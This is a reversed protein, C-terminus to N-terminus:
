CFSRDRWIKGFFGINIVELLQHINKGSRNIKAVEHDECAFNHVNLTTLSFLRFGKLLSVENEQRDNDELEGWDAQAHRQIYSLLYDGARDRAELAGPTALIRGLSFKPSRIGGAENQAM